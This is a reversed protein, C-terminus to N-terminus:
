LFNKKWFFSIPDFRLIGEVKDVSFPFKKRFVYLYKFLDTKYKLVYYECNLDFYDGCLKLQVM